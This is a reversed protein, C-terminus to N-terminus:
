ETQFLWCNRTQNEGSYGDNEHKAQSSYGGNDHRAQVYRQIARTSTGNKQRYNGINEQKAQAHTARSVEWKETVTKLQRYLINKSEFLLHSNSHYRM